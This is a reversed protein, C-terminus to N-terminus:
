SAEETNDVILRLHKAIDEATPPNPAPPRYLTFREVLLSDLLAQRPDDHDTM